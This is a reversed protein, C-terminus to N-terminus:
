GIGACPFHRNCFDILRLEDVGHCSRGTFFKRYIGSVSLDSELERDLRDRVGNILGHDAFSPRSDIGSAYPYHLPRKTSIPSKVAWSNKWRFYIPLGPWISARQANRAYHNAVARLHRGSAGTLTQHFRWENERNDRNGIKPGPLLALVTM